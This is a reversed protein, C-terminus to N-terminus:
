DGLARECGEGSPGPLRERETRRAEPLPPAAPQARAAAGCRRPGANGDGASGGTGGPGLCLALLEGRSRVGLKQHISKVNDHVTHRSLALAQAVEKESQGRLLGSLVMAERPTLGPLARSRPTLKGERVLLYLEEHLLRAIAHQRATFPKDGWDRQISFGAVRDGPGPLRFFGFLPHDTKSPRPYLNVFDSAYYDRDSVVMPRTLTLVQGDLRTAADAIPDLRIEGRTIWEAWLRRDAEDTSGSHVLGEPEIELKGSPVFNQFQCTM